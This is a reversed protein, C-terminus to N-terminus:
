RHGCKSSYVSGVKNKWTDIKLELKGTAMWDTFSANTLLKYKSEPLLRKPIYLEKSKVLFSLITGGGFVTLSSFDDLASLQCKGKPEKQEFKYSISTGTSTLTIKCNPHEKKWAENIKNNSLAFATARTWFKKDGDDISTDSSFFVYATSCVFSVKAAARM